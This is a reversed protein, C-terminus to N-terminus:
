KTTRSAKLGRYLVYIGMLSLVVLEVIELQPTYKISWLLNILFRLALFFVVMMLWLMFAQEGQLGVYRSKRKNSLVIYLAPWGFIYASAVLLRDTIKEM